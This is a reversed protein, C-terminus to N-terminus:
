HKDFYEVEFTTQHNFESKTSDGLPAPVNIRINTVLFGQEELYDRISTILSSNNFKMPTYLMINIKNNDVLASDDGHYEGVKSVWSFVVFTTETGTYLTNAVPIEFEEEIGMISKNINSISM